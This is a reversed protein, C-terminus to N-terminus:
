TTFTQILYWELSETKLMSQTIVDMIFHPIFNSKWESVEVTSGNFNPLPHTIEGLMKNTMHDSICAPIFNGWTQGSRQKEVQLSKVGVIIHRM